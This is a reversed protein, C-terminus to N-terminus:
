PCPKLIVGKAVAKLPLTSGTFFPLSPRFTYTMQIQITNPPSATKSMCAGGSTTVTVVTNTYDALFAQNGASRVRDEIGCNNAACAGAANRQGTMTPNIAGYILGEQVCDRMAILTLIARGVDVIGAVLFILFVLSIAMEVLSQGRKGTGTTAPVQKTGQHIVPM